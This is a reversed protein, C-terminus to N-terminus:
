PQPTGCRICISDNKVLVDKRVQHGYAACQVSAFEAAQKMATFAKICEEAKPFRKKM